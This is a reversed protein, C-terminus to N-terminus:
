IFRNKLYTPAVNMDGKRMKMSKMVPFIMMAFSNMSSKCTFPLRTSMRTSKLTGMSFPTIVLSFRMSADNGEILYRESCPALTMRMDCRPRGLPSFFGSNLMFGTASFRLVFTLALTENTSSQMPSETAAATAAMFVAVDQEKFVEPKVLLFFFVVRFERFFERADGIQVDVVREAGRVAGMGGGLADGLEDLL